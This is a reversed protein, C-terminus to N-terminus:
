SPLYFFLAGMMLYLTLLMVGELWNSEGDVSIQSVVLACLFIAAIEPVTFLLDLPRGLAYGLLVLAPAVFLAIQISSGLAITMSLDMRNRYAAIVATSHEAANGVIAVVIVGVFLESWGVAEATSEVSGVMMHALISVGITALVLATMSKGVSWQAEGHHHALGEEVEATEGVYLHKHTKLAFVLSLGYVLLLVISIELSLDQVVAAERNGFHHFLAPMFLAAVALTLLTASARAATPNFRQSPHRVGGVLLGLGLVLLANGIISGTLSAKIIGHMFQARSPDQAAKILAVIAIIMEAANGFTANLLGGIGEGLRAALRETAHGMWGAMPIIAICSAVFILTPTSWSAHFRVHAVELVIALPFFILLWNLSPRALQKLM